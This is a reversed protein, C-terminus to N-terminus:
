RREWTTLNSFKWLTMKELHVNQMGVNSWMGEGLLEIQFIVLCLHTIKELHINQTVWVGIDAQFICNQGMDGRWMIPNSIGLLFQMKKELSGSEPVWVSLKYLCYPGEVILWHRSRKNRGIDTSHQSEIM